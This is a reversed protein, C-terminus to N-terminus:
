VAAPPGSCSRRHDPRHARPRHRVRARRAAARRPPCGAVRDRRDDGVRRAESRMRAPRPVGPQAARQRVGCPEGAGRRGRSVLDGAALDNVGEGVAVVEGAVSYGIAWGQANLDSAPSAPAAGVTAAVPAQRSARCGGNSRDAVLRRAAKRPDRLSARFYHRCGAPRSRTRTRRSVNRRASAPRGLPAVETGVSVLSYRVRILVTGRQVVPRPMRAVVVGGMNMLLQRMSESGATRRSFGLQCPSVDWSRAPTRLAALSSARLRDLPMRVLGFRFSVVQPLAVRGRLTSSASPPASATARRRGLRGRDDDDIRRAGARAAAM